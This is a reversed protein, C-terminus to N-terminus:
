SSNVEEQARRLIRERREVTIRALDSRQGSDLESAQMSSVVRLLFREPDIGQQKAHVVGQVLRDEFARYASRRIMAVIIATGVIMAAMLLSAVIFLMAEPELAAM